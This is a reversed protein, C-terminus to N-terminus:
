GAKFGRDEGPRPLDDQIKKDNINGNCAERIRGMVLSPICSQKHENVNIGDKGLYLLSHNILM